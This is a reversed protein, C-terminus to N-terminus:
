PREIERWDEGNLIRQGIEVANKFEDQFDQYKQYENELRTGALFNLVGGEGGLKLSIEEQASNDSYEIKCFAAKAMKNRAKKSGFKIHKMVNDEPDYYMGRRAEFADELMHLEAIDLRKERQDMPHEIRRTINEALVSTVAIDERSAKNPNFWFSAGLMSDGSVKFYTDGGIRAPRVYSEFNKINQGIQLRKLMNETATIPAFSLMKKRHRLDSYVEDVIPLITSEMSDTKDGNMYNVVAQMILMKALDEDSRVEDRGGMKSTYYYPLIATALERDADDKISHIGDFIEQDMKQYEAVKEESNETEIHEKFTPMEALIDAGTDEVM